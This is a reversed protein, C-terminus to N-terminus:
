TEIVWTRNVKSNPERVALIFYSSKRSRRVQRPETSLTVANKASSQVSGAIPAKGPGLPLICLRRRKADERM